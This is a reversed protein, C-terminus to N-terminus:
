RADERFRLACHIIYFSILVALFTPITRLIFELWSMKHYVLVSITCRYVAAGWLAVNSFLGVFASRVLLKRDISTDTNKELFVWIFHVSLCQLASSLILLIEGPFFVNINDYDLNFNAIAMGFEVLFAVIQLRALRKFGNRTSIRVFM